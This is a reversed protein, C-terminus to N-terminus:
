ASTYRREGFYDAFAERLLLRVRYLRTINGASIQRLEGRRPQAAAGALPAERDAARPNIGAEGGEDLGQEGRRPRPALRRPWDPLHDAVGHSYVKPVRRRGSPMAGHPSTGRWPSSSRWAMRRRLPRNRWDPSIPEPSTMPRSATGRRHQRRSGPASGWLRAEVRCTPHHSATLIPREGARQRPPDGHV